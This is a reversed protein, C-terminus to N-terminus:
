PAEVLDIAMELSGSLAYWTAPKDLPGFQLASEILTAIAEAPEISDGNLKQYLRFCQQCLTRTYPTM